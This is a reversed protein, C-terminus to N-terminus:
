RFLELETGWGAIVDATTTVGMGADYAECDGQIGAFAERLASPDGDLIRDLLPLLTEAPWGPVPHERLEWPLYKNYSRVRGAFTFIVDLLWPLSEAADLRCEASRGDRDSKLARYTLNLYGDLRDHDILIAREEEPTLTSQRLAAEAIAGDTKDVIILSWAFSWRFWWGESGFAPPHQLESLSIPIEDVDPSRATSRQAAADDSLVVYVDLDSRETALGRGASGSLILGLFGAGHESENREALASLAIDSNNGLKRTTVAMLESM